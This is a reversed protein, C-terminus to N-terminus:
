LSSFVEVHIPTIPLDDLGYSFFQTERARM